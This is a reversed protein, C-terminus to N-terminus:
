FHILACILVICLLVAFYLLFIGILHYSPRGELIKIMDRQVQEIANESSKNKAQNLIESIQTYFEKSLM